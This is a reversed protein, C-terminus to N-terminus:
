LGIPIALMDNDKMCSYEFCTASKQQKSTTFHHKIHISNLSNHSPTQDRPDPPYAMETSM